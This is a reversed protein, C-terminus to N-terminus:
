LIICNSFLLYFHRFTRGDLIPFEMKWFAVASLLIINDAARPAACYTKRTLKRPIESVIRIIIIIITYMPFHNIDSFNASSINTGLSFLTEACWGSLATITGVRPPRVASKICIRRFYWVRAHLARRCSDFYTRKRQVRIRDSVCM